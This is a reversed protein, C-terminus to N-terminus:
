NPAHMQLSNAARLKARTSVLAVVSATQTVLHRDSFLTINITQTTELIRRYVVCIRQAANNERKFCIGLM